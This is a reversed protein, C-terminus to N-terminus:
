APRHAGPDTAGTGTGKDIEELLSALELATRAAEAGKNGAKGGARNLAQELTDTTLVGFAVPVGTATAVQSLGSAAPGAVYDFHATDGRIVAGLAVIGAYRGTQALRSVALPLEFSGPVWAVDIASAAVGHRRLEDRAGAVLQGTILQNFRSAALAFRRGAGNLGGEFVQGAGQEAPSGAPTGVFTEATSAAPDATGGGNTPPTPQGPPGITPGM